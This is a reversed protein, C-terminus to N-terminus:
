PSVEVDLIRTAVLEDATERYRVLVPTAGALHQRLHAASAPQETATAVEPSVRFHYLTGAADRVTVSDAYLIDSSQVDVLIGRVESVQESQHALTWGLGLGIAIVVIAVTILPLFRGGM